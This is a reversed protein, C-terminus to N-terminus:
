SHADIRCYTRHCRCRQRGARYLLTPTGLGIAEFIKAPVIGKDELSAPENVSTIVVALGAGRVRPSRRM